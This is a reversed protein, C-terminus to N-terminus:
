AAHLWQLALGEHFFAGITVAPTAGEAANAEDTLGQEAVVAVRAGAGLARRLRDCIEFPGQVGDAAKVRRLDIVARDKGARLAAAKILYALQLADDNRWKGEVNFRLHKQEVRTAVILNM